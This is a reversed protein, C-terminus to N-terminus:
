VVSILFDGLIHIKFLVDYFQQAIICYDSILRKM